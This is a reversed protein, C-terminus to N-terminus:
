LEHRTPARTIGAHLLLAWLLTILEGGRQLVEMHRKFNATPALYLVVESWFEALLEWVADESAGTIQRQAEEVLHRGLMSGKKLVEHCGLACFCDTLHTYVGSEPVCDGSKSAEEIGKNVEKFRRKTWASDDPLLDPAEAVLYASYRSLSQAVVMSGTRTSPYSGSFRIEFLSTAIHWVLILDTTTTVEVGFLCAWAWTDPLFRRRVASTGSSLQGGSSRLSAIIAAKVEPPVVVTMPRHRNQRPFFFFISDLLHARSQKSPRLLDTQGMEDMWHFPSKRRLFYSLFMESIETCANVLALFTALLVLLIDSTTSPFGFTVFLLFAVYIHSALKLLSLLYHLAASQVDLSVVPLASYYFDYAFLLENAIVRFIREHDDEHGLLGDVVFRFAWSSDAEVLRYGAFRRRLCKFLAFSLCLDKLQPTLVISSESWVRDLTVLRTGERLASPKLRYGQNSEEVDRNREGAVILRPVVATSQFFQEHMYGDILQVNRGLSFSNNARRFAVFRLVMRCAGLAWLPLFQLMLLKVQHPQEKKGFFINYVVLGAVWFTYIVSELSPRIKLSGMSDDWDVPSAVAAVAQAAMDAKAKLFQILVVAVLMADDHSSSIYNTLYSLVYSMLPFYTVSMGRLFFLIAPRSSWRRCSSLGLLLLAQVAVVAVLITPKVRPDM